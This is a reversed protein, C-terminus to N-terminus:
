RAGRGAAPSISTKGEALSPLEFSRLTGGVDVAYVVSGAVALPSAIPKPDQGGAPPLRPKGDDKAVIALRYLRRDGDSIVAERSGM